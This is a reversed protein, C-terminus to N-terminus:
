DAPRRITEDSLAFAWRCALDITAAARRWAAAILCDPALELVTAGVAGTVCGCVAGVATGEM